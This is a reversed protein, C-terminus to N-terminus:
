IYIGASQTHPMKVHVIVYYPHTHLTGGVTHIPRDHVKNFPYTTNVMHM